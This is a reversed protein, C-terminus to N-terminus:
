ILTRLAKRVTERSVTYLDAAGGGFLKKWFSSGTAHVQSRWVVSGTETEQMGFVATIEPGRRRDGRSYGYEEVIGFFLADVGLKEGLAVAQQSTLASEASLGLSNMASITERPDIIELVDAKLIEMLFISQMREDALQDSSLNQYPLVAARQMFGFDVNPNVYSVGSSGCGGLVVFLTALIPAMTGLVLRRKMYGGGKKVM